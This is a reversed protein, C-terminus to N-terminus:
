PIILKQGIQLKKPDDIKNTKLLENYSVKLKKAIAYPNDGQAVVYTKEEKDSAAAAKDQSDSKTADAPKAAKSEQVKSTVPDKSAPTKVSTATEQTKSAAAPKAQAVAAPAAKAQAASSKVPPMRLVQGVHLTTTSTIDNAKELGEISTTHKIAIRKLTDGSVVTYSVAPAEVAAPKASAAAADAAAQATKESAAKAANAKASRDPLIQKSRLSSFAFVGGVALVHLLLVVIFAHSLKMSPESEGDNDDFEAESTAARAYLTKRPVMRRPMRRPALPRTTTKM